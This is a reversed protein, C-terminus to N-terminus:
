AYITIDNGAADTIRIGAADILFTQNRLDLGLSAPALVAAPLGKLGGISAALAAQAAVLSTLGFNGGFFGVTATAPAQADASLGRLGGIAPYAWTATTATGFVPRYGGIGATVTAQARIGLLLTQIKLMVLSAATVAQALVPIRLTQKRNMALVLSALGDAAGSLFEGFRYTRSATVGREVSGALTVSRSGTTVTVERAM